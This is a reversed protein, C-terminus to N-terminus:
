TPIESEASSSSDASENGATEQGTSSSEASVTPRATYEEALAWCIDGLDEIDLQLKAVARQFKDYAENTDQDPDVGFCSRLWKTMAAAREGTRNTRIGSTFALVQLGDVHPVAEIEEGNIELIVPEEKIGKDFSLARRRGESM